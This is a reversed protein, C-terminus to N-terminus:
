FLICCGYSGCCYYLLLAWLLQGLLDVMLVRSLGLGRGVATVVTSNKRWGVLVANANSSCAANILILMFGFAEVGSGPHRCQYFAVWGDLIGAFTGVVAFFVRLWGNKSIGKISSPTLMFDDIDFPHHHLESDPTNPSLQADAIGLQFPLIIENVPLSDETDAPEPQWRPPPDDSLGCADLPARLNASVGLLSLTLTPAPICHVALADVDAVGDPSLSWCYVGWETDSLCHASSGFWGLLLYPVLYGSLRKMHPLGLELPSHHAGTVSLAVAGEPYTDQQAKNVWIGNSSFQEVPHALHDTSLSLKEADSAVIEPNLGHPIGTKGALRNM